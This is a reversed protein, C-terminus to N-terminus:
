KPAWLDYLEKDAPDFCTVLAPDARIIAKRATQFSAIPNTSPRSSLVSHLSPEFVNSSGTSITTTPSIQGPRLPSSGPSSRRNRLDPTTPEPVRERGPSDSASM